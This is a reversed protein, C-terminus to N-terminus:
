EQQQARNGDEEAAHDEERQVVRDAGAIISSGSRLRRRVAVVFEPPQALHGSQFVRRTRKAYKLRQCRERKHNPGIPRLFLAFNHYRRTLVIM